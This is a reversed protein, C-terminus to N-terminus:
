EVMINIMEQEGICLPHHLLLSSSHIGGGPFDFATHHTCESLFLRVPYQVTISASDIVDDAAYVVSFPSILGTVTTGPAAITNLTKRFQLRATALFPPLLRCVFAGAV